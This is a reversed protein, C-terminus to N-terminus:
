RHHKQTAKRVVEGQELPEGGGHPGSLPLEDVGRENSLARDM